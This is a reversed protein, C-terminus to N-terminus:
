RRYFNKQDKQQWQCQCHADVGACRKALVGTARICSDADFSSSFTLVSLEAFLNFAAAGFSFREASPEILL